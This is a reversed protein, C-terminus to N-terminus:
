NFFFSANSKEDPQQILDMISDYYHGDMKINKNIMNIFRSIILENKQKSENSESRSALNNIREYTKNLDNPDSILFSVMKRDKMSFTIFDRSGLACVVDTYLSLEAKKEIGISGNSTIKYFKLRKRSEIFYVYDNDLGLGFKDLIVECDLDIIFYVSKFSSQNHVTKLDFSILKHAKIDHALLINKNVKFSTFIYNRSKFSKVETQKTDFSVFHLSGSNDLMLLNDTNEIPTYNTFYKITVNTPCLFFDIDINQQMINFCKLIQGTKSNVFYLNQDYFLTILDSLLTICSNDIMSSDIITTNDFNINISNIKNNAKIASINQISVKNSDNKYTIAHIQTKTFNFLFKIKDYETLEQRSKENM